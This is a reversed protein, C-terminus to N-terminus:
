LGVLTRRVYGRWMQARICASIPPKPVTGNGHEMLSKKYLQEHSSEVYFLVHLLQEPVTSLTRPHGVVMRCVFFSPPAVLMSLTSTSVQCSINCQLFFRLHPVKSGRDESFPFIYISKTKLISPLIFRCNRFKFFTTFRFRRRVIGLLLSMNCSNSLGLTWQINGFFEDFITELSANNQTILTHFHLLSLKLHLQM